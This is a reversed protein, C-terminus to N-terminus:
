NETEEEVDRALFGWWPGKEKLIEGTEPDIEWHMKEKAKFLGLFRSEKEAEYEYEGNDNLTINTNNLRARTRERILERLEEPLYEILKTENEFVGYVKGNHHYLQAKTSINEGDIKIITNGSKGAMVIMAKGNELQCRLVSGTRTCNEPIQSQNWRLRNKEKTPFNVDCVTTNVVERGGGVWGEPVVCDEAEMWKYRIDVKTMNVGLGYIQCCIRATENEEEENNSDNVGEDEEDSDNISNNGDGGSNNHDAIVYHMSAIIGFALLMLFLILVGKQM